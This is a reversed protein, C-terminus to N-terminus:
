RQLSRYSRGVFRAGRREETWDRQIMIRNEGAGHTRRQFGLNNHQTRLTFLYDEWRGGVAGDLVSVSGGPTPLVERTFRKALFAKSGAVVVDVTPADKTVLRTSSLAESV